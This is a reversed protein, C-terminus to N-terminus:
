IYPNNGAKRVSLANIPLPFKIIPLTEKSFIFSPASYRLRRTRALLDGRIVVRLAHGPVVSCFCYFLRAPVRSNIRYCQAARWELLKVAWPALKAPTAVLIVASM